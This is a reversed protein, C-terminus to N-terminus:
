FRNFVWKHNPPHWVLSKQHYQKISMLFQELYKKEQLSDRAALIQKFRFKFEKVMKKKKKNNDGKRHKIIAIPHSIKGKRTCLEPQHKTGFMGRVHNENLFRSTCEM